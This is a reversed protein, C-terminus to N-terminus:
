ELEAILSRVVSGVEVRSALEVVAKAVQPNLRCGGLKNITFDGATFIHGLAFELVVRDIEPRLPEVLDCVLPMNIEVSHHIVGIKPDLGAAIIQGRLNNALVGYGYNLMANLPHRANRAKRRWTMNRPIIEAWNEPIPKQRIGAWKIPLGQWAIFYAAASAGEIGLIRSITLLKKPKRIEALQRELRSISKDRNESKPIVDILTKISAEIKSGILSRAIITEARQGKIRKQASILKSNGSYGSNGGVNSINGQWDLRVFEIRQETMWSLADFTIGGSGDLVIIRDPLAADGPFFRFQERKQPYHTLGNRVLLTNHDVRIDAGHGCLILPERYKFKKLPHMKPRQRQWFKSRDVWETDDQSPGLQFERLTRLVM